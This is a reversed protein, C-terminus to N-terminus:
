VVRTLACAGELDRYDVELLELSRGRTMIFPIGGVFDYRCELVASENVKFIMSDRRGRDLISELLHHNEQM